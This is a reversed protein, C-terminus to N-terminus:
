IGEDIKLFELDIIDDLNLQTVKGVKEQEMSKQLHDANADSSLLYANDDITAM